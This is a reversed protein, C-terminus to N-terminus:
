LGSCLTPLVVGGDQHPLTVLMAHDCIPQAYTVLPRAASVRVGDSLFKQSPNLAGLALRRGLPQTIGLEMSRMARVQQALMWLM